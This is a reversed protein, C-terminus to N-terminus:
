RRRLLSALPELIVRRIRGALWPVKAIRGALYPSVAYYATVFARGASHRLLTHDRFRRFVLVDPHDYGGYCATAIYCGGSSKQPKPICASLKAMEEAAAAKIRANGMNAASGLATHALEVWTETLAPNANSQIASVWSRGQLYYSRSVEEGIRPVLQPATGEAAVHMMAMLDKRIADLQGPNLPAQGSEAQDLEVTIADLRAAINAM